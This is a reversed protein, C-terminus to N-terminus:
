PNNPVSVFRGLAQVIAQFLYDKAQQEAPLEDFPVICPHEKKGQDKVPGYQWGTARKERLWEEHSHSASADPNALHFQVGNIASEKQWDPAQKWAPQSNDGTAQCLARNAEHCIEAIQEILM